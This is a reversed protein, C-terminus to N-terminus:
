SVIEFSETIHISDKVSQYMACNKKALELIKDMAEQKVDCQIEFHLHIDTVRNATDPDRKVEATVKLGEVKFRKKELIKQLVGGSCVAVSSVLLQYPRYGKTEDSAVHLEGFPHELIFGGQNKLVFEM